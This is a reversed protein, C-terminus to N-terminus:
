SPHLLRVYLLLSLQARWRKQKKREKSKRKEGFVDDVTENLCPLNEAIEAIVYEDLCSPTKENKVEIEDLNLCPAILNDDDSTSDGDSYSGPESIMEDGGAGNRCPAVNLASGTENPCGLASAAENLRCVLV